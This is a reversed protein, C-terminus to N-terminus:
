HHINWDKIKNLSHGCRKVVCKFYYKPHHKRIGHVDINFKFVMSPKAMITRKKPKKNDAHESPTIKLFVHIQQDRDLPWYPVTEDSSSYAVTADTDYKETHPAEYKANLTELYGDLRYKSKPLDDLTKQTIIIQQSQNDICIREEKPKVSSDASPESKKSCQITSTTVKPSPLPTLVVKLEKSVVPVFVTKPEPEPESFQKSPKSTPLPILVVSLEKTVPKEQINCAGSSAALKPQNLEDEVRPIDDGCGASASARSVTPQSYDVVNSDSVVGLSTHIIMDVTTAEEVTLEGVLLSKVSDKTDDLIQVLVDRKVLEIFLGRGLYCLHM